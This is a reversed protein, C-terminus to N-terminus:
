HFVKALQPPRTSGVSQGRQPPEPYIALGKSVLPLDSPIAKIRTFHGAHAPVPRFFEM